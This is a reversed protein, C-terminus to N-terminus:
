PLRILEFLTDFDKRNKEYKMNSIYDSFLSELQKYDFISDILQPNLNHIMRYDTFFYNGLKNRRKRINKEEWNYGFDSKWNLFLLVQEHNSMMSRLIRLYDRKSEYSIITENQKEVFKVTQFLHRYYHALRSQHGTFPKYKIYLEINEYDKINRESHNKQALKLNSKVKRLIDEKIKGNSSFNSIEREFQDLGFFFIYYSYYFIEDKHKYTLVGNKSLFSNIIKYCSILENLMSVFIKKGKIEKDTRNLLIDLEYGDIKMENLNERHLHLMEYFQSEFQQIKFQERVQKNAEYQAYFALGGVIIGFLGIVPSLIGGVLDGISGVYEHHGKDIFSNQLHEHVSNLSYTLLWFLILGSLSIVLKLKYEKIDDKLIYKEISIKVLYLFSFITCILSGITIYFM